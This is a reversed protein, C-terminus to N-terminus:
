RRAKGTAGARRRQRKRHIQARQQHHQDIGALLAHSRRPRNSRAPYEPGADAFAWAQQRDITPLLHKPIGIGTDIVHVTLMIEADRKEQQALVAVSGKETYKLANNIINTLVQSFRMPDGLVILDPPINLDQTLLLGRKSAI